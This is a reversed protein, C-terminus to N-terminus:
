VNRCVVKQWEKGFNEQSNIIAGFDLFNDMLGGGNESVSGGITIRFACLCQEGEKGMGAGWEDKILSIPLQVKPSRLFHESHMHINLKM